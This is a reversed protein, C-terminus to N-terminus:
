PRSRIICPQWAWTGRRRSIAKLITSSRASPTRRVWGAALEFIREEPKRMGVGALIVVDDFLDGFMLGPYDGVGWSSSLLSTKLGSARSERVLPTSSGPQRLGPLPFSISFM